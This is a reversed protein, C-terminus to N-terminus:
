PARRRADCPSRGCRLLRGRPESAPHRAAAGSGARRSLPWPSPSPSLHSTLTFTSPSPSPLTLASLHEGASGGGVAAYDAVARRMAEELRLPLEVLAIGTGAEQDKGQGKGGGLLVLMDEGSAYCSTALHPLLGVEPHVAPFVLHRPFDRDTIAFFLLEDLQMCHVSIPPSSKQDDVTIRGDRKVDERFKAACLLRQMLSIPRDAAQADSVATRHTAVTPRGESVHAIACALVTSSGRVTTSGAPESLDRLLPLLQAVSVRGNEAHRAFAGDFM